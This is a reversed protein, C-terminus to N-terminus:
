VMRTTTSPIYGVVVQAAWGRAMMKQQATGHLMVEQMSCGWAHMFAEESCNDISFTEDKKIVKLQEGEFGQPLTNTSSLCVTRSVGRGSPAANSDQGDTPAQGVLQFPNTGIPARVGGQGDNTRKTPSPGLFDAGSISQNKPHTAREEQADAKM